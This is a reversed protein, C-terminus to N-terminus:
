KSKPAQLQLGSNINPMASGLMSENVVVEAKEKLESVWKQKKLSATFNEKMDKLAPVQANPNQSKMRAAYRDYAEKVEADSVAVASVDVTELIDGVVVEQNSIKEIRTKQKNLMFIQKEIDAKMTVKYEQIKDKIEKKDLIGSSKAYQMLVENLVLSDVISKKVSPDNAFMKYQAPLNELEFDLDAQTISVGNVTAIVASDEANKCGTFVVVVLIVMLVLLKKM